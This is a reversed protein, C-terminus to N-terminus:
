GKLHLNNRHVVEPTAARPGLAEALATGKKGRARMVEDSSFSAIGRGLEHDDLGHISVIDGREFTGRVSTIGVPLLSSGKELLARRAGDDVVLIGKPRRMSIWHARQKGAIRAGARPLFLTGRFRGAAVDTLATDRRGDTVVAVIGFSNAHQAARLKTLMGGRGVNSGSGGAVALLEPTVARVVPILAAAPDTKPNGTHLGAIDTMVVLLDARSEAAIAASLADNDGITLEETIVTDNENIIPVVGMGLLTELCDQINLYRTRDELDAHTLLVQGVHASHRRFADGWTSMLFSQGIAALAQLRPLETPRQRLGAVGMGASVAGSTVVLVQVGVARLAAVQGAVSAIRAADLTGEKTSLVNSGIKIVLRALPRAGPVIAAGGSLPVFPWASAVQDEPAAGPDSVPHSQKTPTM